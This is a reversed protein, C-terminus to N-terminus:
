TKSDRAVHKKFALGFTTSTLKTRSAVNTLGTVGAGSGGAKYSGAWSRRAWSLRAGSGGGGVGEAPGSERKRVGRGQVGQGPGGEAPGDAAKPLRRPKVLHGSFELSRHKACNRSILVGLGGVCTWSFSFLKLFFRFFPRFSFFVRFKTQGGGPGGGGPEAGGASRWWGSRGWGSRGWRVARPGGGGPGGGGPGTKLAIQLLM